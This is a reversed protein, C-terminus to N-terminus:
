YDKTCAHKQQLAIERKLVEAHSLYNNAVENLAGAAGAISGSAGGTASGATAGLATSSVATLIKSLAPDVGAKALTDSILPASLTSAAAGVAGATGGTLAGIVTHAALRATGQDGWSTEIQQAQDRLTQARTRGALNNINDANLRIATRGAITGSNKVDGSFNANISNGSILTGNGDLDGERLRVYLQPVLAHTTIGDALTVTQDVLWVIDSTLQAIQEKTLAIGPRLNWNNRVTAGNRMLALYQEEDNGYEDLFRRGTLQAVQDRILSQEYYGDGLRKQTMAPDMSLANLLYDSSLWKRYNTYAADTEVVYGGIPKDSPHADVKFLANNPLTIQNVDNRTVSIANIDKIYNSQTTSHEAYRAGTPLDIITIEPAPNYYTKGHWERCHSDGFTGCTEITTFEATGKYQVRYTGKTEQNSLATDTHNISDDFIIQSDQNTLKADSMGDGTINLNGGVRILSPSTETVQSRSPSATLNYWTYDEFKHLRNDEKVSANYADVPISLADLAAQYSVGM